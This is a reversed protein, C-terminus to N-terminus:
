TVVDAIYVAEPIKLAPLFTDGMINSMGVPKHTIVSYGFAGHVMQFGNLAAQADTQIDITTPVLNSGEFMSWFAPADSVAPMFTVGNAPWYNVKTGDDKTFSAKWAPIWKFGFLGDPITNEQLYQTQMASNRALFDLVYTNQLLHDRVNRGYLAVTPEYGHAAAALEQLRSLALPINTDHNAWSGSGDGTGAEGFIGNGDNDLITGINAAPVGQSFTHDTDAGSSSPLVNGNSDAYITGLCLTTGVSVIRSNGFLTGMTKVNNAVMQRAMQGNKWDDYARLTQLIYPPYQREEGFTIFKAEKLEEQQLERVRPVGGYKIVRATKRMGYTRNFKVSDGIVKDEPRVTFLYKPFPNPVGDRVAAIAKTLAVWSLIDQWSHNAM